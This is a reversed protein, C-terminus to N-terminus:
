WDEDEEVDVSVWGPDTVLVAFEILNPMYERAKEFQVRIDRRMLNFHDGNTQAIVSSKPVPMADKFTFRLSPPGDSGGRGTWNAFWAFFETATIKPNIVSKNHPTSFKGTGDAQLRIIIEPTPRQIMARQQSNSVRLQAAEGAQYQRTAVHSIAAKRPKYYIVTSSGHIVCKQGHQVILEAYPSGTGRPGTDVQQVPFGRGSVVVM